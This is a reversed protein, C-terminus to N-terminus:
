GTRSVYIKDKKLILVMTPSGIVQFVPDLRALGSYREVGSDGNSTHSWVNTPLIM